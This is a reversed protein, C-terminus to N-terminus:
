PQELKDYDDPPVDPIQALAEYYKKWSGKKALKELYPDKVLLTLKEVLARAALENVSIHIRNAVKAATMQVEDPISIQLTTM